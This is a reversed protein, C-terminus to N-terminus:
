KRPHHFQRVGVDDKTYVDDDNDSFPNNPMVKHRKKPRGAGYDGDDGESDSDYDDHSEHPRKTPRGDHLSGHEAGAGGQDDDDDGDYGHGGYGGDDDGHGGYSGDDDGHGGYGGDDDGHGGYGGDDDGHGGYSGDDDGHDGYGDDGDVGGGDGREAGDGDGSATYKGSEPWSEDMAMRVSEECFQKYLSRRQRRNRYCADHVPKLWNNYADRLVQDKGTRKRHEFFNAFTEKDFGRYFDETFAKRRHHFFRYPVIQLVHEGSWVSTKDDIMCVMDHADGPIIELIKAKNDEDGLEKLETRSIIRNKFYKREPDIVSVVESAYPIDAATVVIMEFKDSCNELFERADPRIHMSYFNTIGHFYQRGIHKAMWDRTTEMLTNDLDVLLILKQQEQLHERNLKKIAEKTDELEPMIVSKGYYAEKKWHTFHRRTQESRKKIANLLNMGKFAGQEYAEEPIIELLYRAAELYDDDGGIDFKFEPVNQLCDIRCNDHFANTWSEFVKFPVIKLVRDRIWLDWASIPYGMLKGKAPCLIVAMRQSEEPFYDLLQRKPSPYKGAFLSKSLIRGKFYKGKPDIVSLMAKVNEFTNFSCAVMEYHRAMAALFDNVFPRSKIWIDYSAKKKQAKLIRGGDAGKTVHLLTENLDILLILKRRKALAAWTIQRIRKLSTAQPSIKTVISHHHRDGVAMPGLGGKPRHSGAM